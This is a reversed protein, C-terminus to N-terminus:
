ECLPREAAGTARLELDSDMDTAEQAVMQGVTEGFAMAASLLLMRGKRVMERAELKEEEKTGGGSGGFVHYEVAGDDKMGRGHGQDQRERQSQKAEKSVSALSNASRSMLQRQSLSGGGRTGGRVGAAALAARQQQQQNRLRRLGRCKESEQRDITIESVEREMREVYREVQLFRRASRALRANLENEFGGSSEEERIEIRAKAGAVDNLFVSQYSRVCLVLWEPLSGLMMSVARAHSSHRTSDLGQQLYEHLIIASPQHSELEVGLKEDDDSSSGSSQYDLRYRDSRTKTRTTKRTMSKETPSVEKEQSTERHFELKSPIRKQLELQIDELCDGEAGRRAAGTAEDADDDTDSTLLYDMERFIDEKLSLESSRFSESFPPNTSQPRRKPSIELSDVSIADDGDSYDRSPYPGHMLRLKAREVEEFTRIFHQQETLGGVDMKTLSHTLFASNELLGLIEEQEKLIEQALIASDAKLYNSKSSRMKSISVGEVRCDDSAELQTKSGFSKFYKFGANEKLSARGKIPRTRSERPQSQTLPSKEDFILDVTRM